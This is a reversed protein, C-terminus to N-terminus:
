FMDSCKRIAATPMSKSSGIILEKIKEFEKNLMFFDKDLRGFDKMLLSVQKELVHM